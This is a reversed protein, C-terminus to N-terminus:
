GLYNSKVLKNKEYFIIYPKGTPIEVQAINEPKHINLCITLARLSNGHAVVLINKEKNIEPFIKNEFYIKVRAFVQKLSEGGPPAEEYSRRWKHVQSAGYKKSTEIKNLGVLDGYDRENLAKSYLINLHNNELHHLDIKSKVITATEQARKLESTYILDIQISSENILKAANNAEEIGKHTLPVDELGTFKNELNWKSQGHRLLILTNM